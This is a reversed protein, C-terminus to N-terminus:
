NVTTVAGTAITYTFANSDGSEQDTYICKENAGDITAKFYKSEDAAAEIDEDVLATFILVCSAANTANPWSNAMSLSNGTSLLVSDATGTGTRSALSKGHAMMVGAKFAGRASEAKAQHAEGQMDIFKPVAVASLIGMIVIVVILEILTFGKQNNM